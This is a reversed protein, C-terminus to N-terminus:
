NNVSDHQTEQTKHWTEEETKLAIVDREIVYERWLVYLSIILGLISAVSGAYQLIMSLGREPM